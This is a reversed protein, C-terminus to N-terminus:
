QTKEAKLNKAKKLDSKSGEHDGLKKRTLGRGHYAEASKPDLAIAKTYDAEAAKYDNLHYEVEGRNIYAHSNESDLIISTNIDNMAEKYKGLHYEADGKNNHAYANAPDLELAKDYDEIAGKYDKMDHKLYGRTDYVASNKPEIKMAEDLDKLAGKYDKNESKYFSRRAYLSSSDQFSDPRLTKAINVDEIAGKYDGFNVREVSRNIYSNYSTPDIDIATDLIKKAERYMKLNHKIGSNIVFAHSIFRNSDLYIYVSNHSSYTWNDADFGGTTEWDVYGNYYDKGNLFWRILVHGSTVSKRPNPDVELLAIPLDRKTFLRELVEVYIMSSTDCDFSFIGAVPTLAEFLTEVNKGSIVVNNNIKFLTDIRYLIALIVDRKNCNPREVSHEKSIFDNYNAILENLEKDAIIPNVINDLQSFITKQEEDDKVGSM